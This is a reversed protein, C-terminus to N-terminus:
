KLSVNSEQVTFKLYVYAEYTQPVHAPEESRRIFKNGCNLLIHRSKATTANSPRVETAAFNFSKHNLLVRYSLPRAQFLHLTCTNYHGGNGLPIVGTRDVSHFLLGNLHYQKNPFFFMSCHIRHFCFSCLTKLNFFDVFDFLSESLDMAM